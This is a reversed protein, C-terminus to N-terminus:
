HYRVPVCAFLLHCRVHLLLYRSECSASTHPSIISVEQLCTPTCFKASRFTCACLCTLQLWVIEFSTWNINHRQNWDLKIKNKMSKNNCAIMLHLLKITFLTFYYYITTTSNSINRHHINLFDAYFLSYFCRPVQTQIM